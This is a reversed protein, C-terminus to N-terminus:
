KKSNYNNMAAKIREWKAREAPTFNEMLYSIMLSAENKTLSLGKQKMKNAETVYIKMAEEKSKGEMARLMNTMIQKKEPSLNKFRPDNLWRNDIM